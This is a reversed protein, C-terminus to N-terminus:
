LKLPDGQPTVSPLGREFDKAASAAQSVAIAFEHAMDAPIVLVCHRVRIAVGEEHPDVQLHPSLM